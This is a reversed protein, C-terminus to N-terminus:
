KNLREEVHEKLEDFMDERIYPVEEADMLKLHHLLFLLGKNTKPAMEPLRSLGTGLGDSPIVITKGAIIAHFVPQMDDWIVRMNQIFHDESFYSSPNEKTAIGIANPEDRMQGAQGGYGVRRTNDGFLYYISPNNRLDQRNIRHQYIIM